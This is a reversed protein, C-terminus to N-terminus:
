EMCFSITNSLLQNRGVGVPELSSKKNQHYLIKDDRGGYCNVSFL